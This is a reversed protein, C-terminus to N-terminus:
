NEKAGKGSANKAHNKTDNNSDKHSLGFSHGLGPESKSRFGTRSGKGSSAAIAKSTLSTSLLFVLAPPTVIAFRGCKNLFDRRDHNEEM